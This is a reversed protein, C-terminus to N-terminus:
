GTPFNSRTKTAKEAKIVIYEKTHTLIKYNGFHKEFLKKVFPTLHGQMVWVVKGQPKLHKYCEQATEELFENGLHQPPNSFIQDYTRNPTASFVDSLYVEVNKLGNLQANKKALEIVRLNVDFLYVYGDPNLKAATFGIIGTGCGLDAITTGNQINVAEILLKSGSDIGKRSFIGAKTKFKVDVGKIHETIIDEM